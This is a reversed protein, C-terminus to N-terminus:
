GFGQSFCYLTRRGGDVDRGRWEVQARAIERERRARGRHKPGRRGRRGVRRRGDVRGRSQGLVHKAVRRVPVVVLHPVQRRAGGEELVHTAVRRDGHRGLADVNGAHVQEIVHGHVLRM